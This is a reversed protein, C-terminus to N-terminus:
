VIILLATLRATKKFSFLITLVGLTPQVIGARTYCYKNVGISEYKM